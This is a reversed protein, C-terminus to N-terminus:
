DILKYITKEERSADIVEISIKEKPLGIAASLPITETQGASIVIDAEELVTGKEGAVAKWHLKKTQGNNKLSFTLENSAPNEFYLEWDTINKMDFQEKEVYALFGFSAILFVALALMIRKENNLKITAITFM